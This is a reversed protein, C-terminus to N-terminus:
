DNNLEGKLEQAYQTLQEINYIRSSRVNGSPYDFYLTEGQVDSLYPLDALVECQKNLLQGYFDGDTTIYQVVLFDEVQTVYTLYADEELQYLLNGTKLSYVQAAGHLPSEIRYLETEFIEVLSEDPADGQDEWLLTGDEASYAAVTGDYYTVELRDGDEDRIYQQDYVQEADPLDVEIILTGDQSYLRFQDYSFLMLTSGDASVRAESHEYSSDYSFLEAETHSEYKLVRIVSSNQSGVLATDGTLLLFDASIDSEFSSIQAANGDFFSFGSATAIITHSGDSDFALIDEKTTVLATQDGTAPDIKVLINDQQVYIGNKDTQVSYASDLSQFGGTQEMTDTDVIAFVSSTSSSASFALYQQSFGGEFHTYGSGVDLLTTITGEDTLAFIQLSGDEFSVALLTGDQNLAFLNDNPNLFIDNTTVQQCAGQFDVTCQVSGDAASYVTAFTEDRYVAAVCSGDASIAIGTALGGTWLTKGAAISYATLGDEGAYLLTDEDLYVIEALASDVTPLTALTECTETDIIVLNQTYLCAATGGEPSLALNLPESSLEIIEYSKYGDSLDYVGTASALARQAEATKEPQLLNTGTPLAQLAYDLAAATDGNALANQSYEALKLWQETTQMRKLGVFASAVGLAFCITLLTCVVANQRKQRRVRIDNEWLHTLASLMEDATQYRLDPNPNMAKTIIAVIQPSFEQPSLPIVSKADKAPRHGSLLHYFTAGVMYIDSRVDPAIRKKSIVSSSQQSHSAQPTFSNETGWNQRGNPLSGTITNENQPLAVTSDDVDANGEASHVGSPITETEGNLEATATDANQTGSGFSYDLGYHEPSAYGESRGIAVDEGLALAINFDILCIDGNPRLMLNAPKIDSHVFGKPPSGHTPSHLYSLAELLQRVWYIVQPQSFREGRKLPKDLSEGEIFDIVTYVTMGERFFDYVQPIYPHNLEKLVDVERRLINLPTSLERKDAKLVVKKGLRLHDALYVNGGGGYGIKKIIRYTSAIIEAM